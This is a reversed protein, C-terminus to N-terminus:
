LYHMTIHKMINILIISNGTIHGKSIYIYMFWINTLIIDCYILLITTQSFAANSAGCQCGKDHLNLSGGGHETAPPFLTYCHNGV